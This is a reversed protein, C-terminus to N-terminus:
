GDMREDMCWVDYMCVYMMACTYVSKVFFCTDYMSVIGGVVRVYGM